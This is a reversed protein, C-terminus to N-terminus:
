PLVAGPKKPDPLRDKIEPLKGAMSANFAPLDRDMLNTFASKAAALDREIETLTALSADTPRFEAGGAVDGAGTGVEGFLWILNMYVRYQEVYWKDDSHLDSRTLLRLEVNLMKGDLDALAAKAGGDVTESKRLDEIQRRMIELRNIMDVSANLDDRIRVQARTSALLDADTSALSPDKAVRFAQTYWASDVKLRLTYRGPSAVPGTRQPGQIGWHNIPRTPNRRFRPEDWIAPNDPPTTRLEVQKPGDHRMDWSIRNAGARGIARMARVVVGASDLLELALTDKPAAKLTFTFDVSGSRALRYGTRPEYVRVVADAVAKDSQEIMTIDRLVYLGRGYTSVVVDHNTKPVVIWTVPAAPLGAKLATWTGGDDLSYYLASGTGVFLMGKRNPNEALSMTYALPHDQPLGDSIRKWTKGLDTTKYVYPKRDDMMHM